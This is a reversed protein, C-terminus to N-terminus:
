KSYKKILRSIPKYILIVVVSTTISKLLNFPITAFLVFTLKNNIVPNIKSGMGIIVEMPLDIFYSYADLLIFYNTLAGVIVLTISGFILGIIAGKKSKNNKYILSTVVVFSGGMIFNAFEGVFATATGNLVFDIIIKIVQIFLGAVPGMILGGVISPVEALDMEYFSPFIPLPLSMVMLIASLAGFIAIFAINRTNLVKKNM